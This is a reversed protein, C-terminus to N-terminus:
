EMSYKKEYIEAEGPIDEILGMDEILGWADINALKVCNDEYKKFIRAMELLSNRRKLGTLKESFRNIITEVCTQMTEFQNIESNRIECTYHTKREINKKVCEAVGMDVVTIVIEISM